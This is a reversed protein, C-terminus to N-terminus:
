RQTLESRREYKVDNFQVDKLSVLLDYPCLRTLGHAYQRCSRKLRCATVLERANRHRAACSMLLAQGPKMDLQLLLQIMNM